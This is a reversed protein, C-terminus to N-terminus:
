HAPSIGMLAESGVAMWSDECKPDWDSTPQSRRTKGALCSKNECRTVGIHM